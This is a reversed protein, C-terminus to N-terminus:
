NGTPPGLRERLPAIVEDGFRAISACKADCDTPDAGHLLWPVTILESVGLEAMEVYGDMDYVDRLAACIGFPEAERGSARRMAGLQATITALESRSQIESAWGDCHTAARRLAVPSVGGGYIPIVQEPAPRMQFEPFSYFKGQHSVPEGSWLKRMVDISEVLRRGRGEFAQGVLEFEERMWGAGVGLTVRGGSLVAATGITKAALVPHRLPLVYISTIFRLRETVAAMAGIAVFPDPWPTEQTWRPAGDQTYPYPTELRSPHAVHDSIVIAGFGAAEASQAIRTLHEPANYAVAIAFDL